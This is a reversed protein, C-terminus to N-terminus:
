RHGTQASLLKGVRWWAPAVERLLYVIAPGQDSKMILDGHHGFKMLDRVLQEAVWEQDAGEVAVAHAVTMKAGRDRAVLVVVYDGGVADRPFCDGVHVEPVALQELAPQGDVTPFTTPPEPWVNLVGIGSPFTHLM